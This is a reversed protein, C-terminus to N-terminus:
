NALGTCLAAAGGRKAVAGWVERVGATYELQTQIWHANGVLGRVDM